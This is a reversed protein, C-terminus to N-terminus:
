ATPRPATLSSWQAESQARLEVAAAWPRPRGPEFTGRVVRRAHRPARAPRAEMIGALRELTEAPALNVEDLLLWSGDRLAAVLAGEVFAFV